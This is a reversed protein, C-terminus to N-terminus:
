NRWIRRISLNRDKSIRESVKSIADLGHPGDKFHIESTYNLTDIKSDFEEVFSNDLFLYTKVKYDRPAQPVQAYMKEVMSFYLILIAALSLLKKM